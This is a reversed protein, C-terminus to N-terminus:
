VDWISDLQVLEPKRKLVFPVHEMIAVQHAKRQGSYNSQLVEVIYATCKEQKM